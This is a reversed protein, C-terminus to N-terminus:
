ALNGLRMAACERQFVAGVITAAAYRAQTQRELLLLRGHARWSIVRERAAGGQKRKGLNPIASDRFQFGADCGM